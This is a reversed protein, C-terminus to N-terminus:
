RGCHEIYDSPKLHIRHKINEPKLPRGCMPCFKIDITISYYDECEDDPYSFRLQDGDRIDVDVSDFWGGSHYLSKGSQCYDCKKM